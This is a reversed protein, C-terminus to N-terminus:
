CWWCSGNIWYCVFIRANLCYFLDIVVTHSSTCHNPLYPKSIPARLAQKFSKLMQKLMCEVCNNFWFLTISEVINFFFHASDFKFQNLSESLMLEVNQKNKLINFPTSVVQVSQEDLMQGFDM